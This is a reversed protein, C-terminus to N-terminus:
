AVDPGYLIKFSLYGTGGASVTIKLWEDSAAPLMNNPGSRLVGLASCTAYSAIKIANDM